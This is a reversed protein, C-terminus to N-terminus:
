RKFILPSGTATVEASAIVGSEVSIDFAPKSSMLKRREIYYKLTDGDYVEYKEKLSLAKQIMTLTTM